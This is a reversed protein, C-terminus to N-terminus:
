YFLGSNPKCMKCDDFIRNGEEECKKECRQGPAMTHLAVAASLIKLHHKQLTGRSLEVNGIM